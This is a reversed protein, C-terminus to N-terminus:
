SGARRRARAQLRVDRDLGAREDGLRGLRARPWHVTGASTRATLQSAQESRARSRRSRDRARGRSAPGRPAAAAGGDGVGRPARVPLRRPTRIAVARITKMVWPCADSREPRDDLAPMSSACGGSRRRRRRGRARCSRSRACAGSCRRPPRRGAPRARRRAARRSPARRRRDLGRDLGADRDIVILEPLSSNLREAHEGVDALGLVLRADLAALPQAARADLARQADVLLGAVAAEVLAAAAEGVPERLVPPVSAGSGTGAAPGARDRLAPHGCAIAAPETSPMRVSPGPPACGAIAATCRSRAPTALDLERGEVERGVHEGRHAVALHEERDVLLGVQLAVQRHDQEGLLRAM